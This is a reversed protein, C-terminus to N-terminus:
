QCQFPWEGKPHMPDYILFDAIVPASSERVTMAGLEKGRITGDDEQDFVTDGTAKVSSRNSGHSCVATIGWPVPLVKVNKEQCSNIIKPGAAAVPDWASLGELFAANAALKIVAESGFM